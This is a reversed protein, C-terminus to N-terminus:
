KENRMALQYSTLYIGKKEIFIDKAFELKTLM